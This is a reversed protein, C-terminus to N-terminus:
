SMLEPIQRAVVTPHNSFLLISKEDLEVGNNTQGLIRPVSLVEGIDLDFLVSRVTGVNRSSLFEVIRDTVCGDM